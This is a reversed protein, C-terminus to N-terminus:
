FGEGFDFEAKGYLTRADLAPATVREELPVDLVKGQPEAALAELLTQFDALLREATSAEFLDPNYELFGTLEEGEESTELVLDYTSTGNQMHLPRIELGPLELAHMPANQHVFLVQFLPSSSRQREPHLAEVLQDFPLDQHA